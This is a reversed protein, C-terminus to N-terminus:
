PLPNKTVALCYGDEPSYLYFAATQRPEGSEIVALIDTDRLPPLDDSHRSAAHNQYRLVVSEEADFLPLSYLHHPMPHDDLVAYRRRLRLAYAEKDETVTMSPSGRRLRLHTGDTLTLVGEQEDAIADRCVLIGKNVSLFRDPPLAAAFEKVTRYTTLRRGDSLYLVTQGEERCLYTLDRPRIGHRALYRDIPTM